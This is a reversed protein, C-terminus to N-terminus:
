YKFEATTAGVGYLNMPADYFEAGVEQLRKRVEAKLIGEGTGHIIQVVRIKRRMLENICQEFYALQYKLVLSKDDTQYQKPLAYAHLDIEYEQRINKNKIYFDKGHPTHYNSPKEQVKIEKLPLNLCHMNSNLDIDWQNFAAFKEPAVKIKYYFSFPRETDFDSVEIGQVWLKNFPCIQEFREVRHLIKVGKDIECTCLSKWIKEDQWHIQVLLRKQLPNNFCLAFNGKREDYYFQLSPWDGSSLLFDPELKSNSVSQNTSEIENKARILNKLPTPIVFGDVTEVLALGQHNFGKIVGGGVENLFKVEDGAKFNSM